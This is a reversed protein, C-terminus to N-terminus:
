IFRCPNQHCRLRHRMLQKVQNALSDNAAKLEEVATRTEKIHEDEAIKKVVEEDIAKTLEEKTALGKVTDQLMKEIKQEFENDVPM